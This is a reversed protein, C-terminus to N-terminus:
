ARGNWGGPPPLRLGTAFVCRWDETADALPVGATALVATRVRITTTDALLIDSDTVSRLRSEPRLPRPDVRVPASSARVFHQVAAAFFPGSRGPATQAAPGSAPVESCAALTSTLVAALVAQRSPRMLTGKMAVKMMWVPCHPADGM